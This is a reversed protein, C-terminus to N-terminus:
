ETRLSKVPNTTAAKYAQVSTTLLAICFAIFGSVMFVTWSINIRYAFDTLWGDMLWWGIPFAIISAILVLRLFDKSLLAIISGTGAGLIKRIGIEKIRQQAAYTALGFLGMCAILITLLAVALFITQRKEDERYFNDWQNDLFNYEFLHAPDIAYVVDQMSKITQEMNEGEVRATFYDIPHVPNNKYSLIMPEVKERLSQFNFDRVIGIVRAKFIENLPSLSGSFSVSPMEILQESPDQINLMKAAAENIIVTSSDGPRSSSFNRGKLLKVEFTQIFQDDVAMYYSDEGSSPYKGNYNVKVKPIVKWEGPVRSTVSTSKVGPIMAFESKITEAARRVLGSNIDVVMLQEKKFGMDITDVFKMQKYVIITSVIMVISLSFQFVVLISRVSLNHKGMNIKNKLLLYPKMKAQFFAPYIGALLGAFIATLIVGAWLRYDSYLGLSLQKETFSNFNPLALKVIFISLLLSFFTLISTETLFQYVLNKQTAGAVKRVAIEKSRGAYRATTLNMYNVCAILLVFLAVIGFVYMHRINGIKGSDGELGSSYFHIEKLPQLTFTSKVDEKRNSKVLGDIKPALKKADANKHLKLYTTINNSTWDNNAFDKFGKSSYFSAESFLVNFRLHSNGPIKIVATITNELSDRDSIITRGVVNTTGFIKLATEDTIVVTNPEVLANAANGHMLPFDFVKLFHEDAFYYTEYFVNTNGSGFVNTRGIAGFRAANKVEPFNKKSIVSVNYATSTLKTEKGDESTRNEVVRYISDAEKHFTDYTLEDFIYLGILLFCALGTTLGFLHIFTFVKQKRMNRIAIKIYNKFM